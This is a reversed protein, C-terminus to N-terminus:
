NKSHSNCWIRVSFVSEAITIEYMINAVPDEQVQQCESLGFAVVGVVSLTLRLGWICVRSYVPTTKRTIVTHVINYIIAFGFTIASSPM